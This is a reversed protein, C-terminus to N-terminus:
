VPVAPQSVPVTKRTVASIETEVHRIISQGITANVELLADKAATFERVVAMQTAGRLNTMLSPAGSSPRARKNFEHESSCLKSAARYFQDLTRAAHKADMDPTAFLRVHLSALSASRFEGGLEVGQLDDKGQTRAMTM